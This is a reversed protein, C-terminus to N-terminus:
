LRDESIAKAMLRKVGWRHFPVIFFLYVKGYRNNVTCITSIVVSDVHERAEKLVSLRFDLHKNNRGAVLETESLAFIPWPGIKDGVAYSSKIVPNLIDSAPPVDLGGFTALQNRVILVMKMWLPQHGFISFFIDVVSADAHHVPARYADRFYASEVVRRDLTSSSPVECEVISM